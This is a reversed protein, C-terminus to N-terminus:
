DCVNIEAFNKTNFFMEAGSISIKAIKQKINSQKINREEQYRPRIYSFKDKHENAANYINYIIAWETSEDLSHKILVISNYNYYM